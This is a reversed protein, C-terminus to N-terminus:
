FSPSEFQPWRTPVSSSARTGDESCASAIESNGLDFATGDNAYLTARVISGGLGLVLCVKRASKRLPISMTMTADVAELEAVNEDPFSSINTHQGNDLEISGSVVQQIMERLSDADFVRTAYACEHLNLNRQHLLGHQKGVDQRRTQHHHDIISSRHDISSARPELSSSSRYSPRRVRPARGEHDM